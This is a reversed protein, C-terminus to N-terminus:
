SYVGVRLLGLDTRGDVRRYVNVPLVRSVNREGQGCIEWHGCCPYNLSDCDGECGPNPTLVEIEIFWDEGFIDKMDTCADSHFSDIAMLKSDDFVSNEKVLLPSGILRQMLVDIRQNKIDQQEMAFQSFQWWSLFFIIAIIVM